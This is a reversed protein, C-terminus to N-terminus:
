AQVADFLPLLGRGRRVTWAQLLSGSVQKLLSEIVADKQKLQALLYERKSGVGLFASM